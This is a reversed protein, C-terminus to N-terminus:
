FVIHFGIAGINEVVLPFLNTNPIGYPHQGQQRKQRIRLKGNGLRHGNKWVGISIGLFPYKPGKESPEYILATLVVFKTLHFHSLRCNLWSTIFIFCILVRSFGRCTGPHRQELVALPIWPGHIEGNSGAMPYRPGDPEISFTPHLGKPQIQSGGSQRCLPLYLSRKLHLKIRAWALGSENVTDPISGWAAFPGQDAAPKALVQEDNADVPDAVTRMHGLLTHLGGM